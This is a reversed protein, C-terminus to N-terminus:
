RVTLLRPDQGRDAEPLLPSWDKLAAIFFIRKLKMFYSM